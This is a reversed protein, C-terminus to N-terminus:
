AVSAIPNEHLKNIALVMRKIYILETVVYFKEKIKKM